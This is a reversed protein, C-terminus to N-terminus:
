YTEGAEELIRLCAKIRHHQNKVIYSHQSYDVGQPILTSWYRFLHCDEEEMRTVVAGHAGAGMHLVQPANIGNGLGAGAYGRISKEKYTTVDSNKLKGDDGDQLARETDETARNRLKIEKENDLVRGREQCWVRNYMLSMLCRAKGRRISDRYLPQLVMPMAAIMDDIEARADEPTQPPRERKRPRNETMYRRMSRLKERDAEDLDMSEARKMRVEAEDWDKQDLEHRIGLLDPTEKQVDVFRREAEDVYALRKSYHWELFSSKNVFHFGRPMEEGQQQKKREIMDFRGSVVAWNGILGELSKSGSGNLFEEIKDRSANSSFIRDLWVGVKNKSIHGQHAASELRAKAQKYLPARGTNRSLLAARVQSVLGVRKEYHANLFAEEDLFIDIEDVDDASLGKVRPDSMLQRRKDAIKNWREIYELMKENIFKEKEWWYANSALLRNRWRTINGETICRSARAAQIHKEFKSELERIKRETEPIHRDLNEELYQERKRISTVGSKEFAEDSLGEREYIAIDRGTYMKSSSALAHLQQICRARLSECRRFEELDGFESAGDDGEAVM